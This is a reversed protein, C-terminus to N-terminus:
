GFTNEGALQIYLIGDADVHQDYLELLLTTPGPMEGSDTFLLVAYSPKLAAQLNRTVMHKFDAVTYNGAVVYKNSRLEIIKRYSGHVYVYVPIKGPHNDTCRQAFCRRAELTYTTQFARKSM